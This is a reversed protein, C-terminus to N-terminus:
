RNRGHGGNGSVGKGDSTGNGPNSRAQSLESELCRIRAELSCITSRLGSICSQLGLVDNQLHLNCSALNRNENELSNLCSKARELDTQLDRNNNALQRASSEWDAASQALTQNAQGLEATKVELSALQRSSEEHEVARLANTQNLTDVMRDGYATLTAVTQAKSAQADAHRMRWDDVDERLDEQNRLSNRLAGIMLGRDEEATSLHLRSEELKKLHDALSAKLTSVEQTLASAHTREGHLQWLATGLTIAAIGWAALTCTGRLRFRSPASAPSSSGLVRGSRRIPASVDPDRSSIRFVANEPVPTWTPVKGPGPGPRSTTSLAM